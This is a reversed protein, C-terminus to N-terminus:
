PTYHRVVKAVIYVKHHIYSVDIVLNTGTLHNAVDSIGIKKRLYDLSRTLVVEEVLKSFLCFADRGLQDGLHM